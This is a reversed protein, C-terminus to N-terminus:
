DLPGSFIRQDVKRPSLANLTRIIFQEESLGTKAIEQQMAANGLEFSSVLDLKWGPEKVFNFLPFGGAGAISATARYGDVKIDALQAVNAVAAKSIWGRDVGHILLQRGTMEAIRKRDFEHRVRLVMFKSMFDLQALKERPAAAALSVIEDYFVITRASVLDAAAAGDGDVLAKRYQSFTSEIATKPGSAHAHLAVVCLSALAISKMLRM